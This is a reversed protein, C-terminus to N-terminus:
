VMFIMGVSSNSFLLHLCRIASNHVPSHQFVAYRGFGNSILYSSGLVSDFALFELILDSASGAVLGSSYLLDVM